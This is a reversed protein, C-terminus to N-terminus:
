EEDEEDADDRSPEEEEDDDHDAPYDAPDEESDEDDDGSPEEEEEDDDHDALYDVPDEEPDEDDDDKPDEDPDSELIYGPSDTTPLAVALLPQEKAPFVEDKVPIYEPYEPEPVYPIYVPSPPAQEPEKPGPVYDPAHLAQFAAVVYAYPDEPMVPPGDEGPSVDRSRVVYPNSVTTYTVTSDESDSLITDIYGLVEHRNVEQFVDNRTTLAKCPGGLHTRYLRGIPIDEGIRILIARRRRIGPPAVVPALPFEFSPASTASPAPSIPATPIEPTSTTPSVHREPVKTDSELDALCLFPSVM